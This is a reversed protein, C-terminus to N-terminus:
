SLIDNIDPEVIIPDHQGRTKAQWKKETRTILIRQGSRAFTLRGVLDFHKGIDFALKGRLKPTGATEGTDENEVMQEHATCIFTIPLSGFADSVVTETLESIAGWDQIRLPGINKPNRLKDDLSENRLELEMQRQLESLSDLIVVEFPKDIKLDIGKKKFFETWKEATNNKALMQYIENLDSFKTYQIPVINEQVEKPLNEITKAGHDVDFLLTKRERAALCALHTKGSGPAGYILINDNKSQGPQFIKM